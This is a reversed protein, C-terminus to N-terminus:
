ENEIMKEKEKKYSSKFLWIGLFLFLTSFVIQFVETLYPNPSSWYVNELLYLEVNFNYHYWLKHLGSGGYFFFFCFLGLGRRLM